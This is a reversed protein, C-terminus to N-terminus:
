KIHICQVPCAKETDKACGVDEVELEENEERTQSEKLHAQGEETIEFFQECLAVCTGCGICKSKELIIKM